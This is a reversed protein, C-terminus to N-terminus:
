AKLCADACMGATTLCEAGDGYMSAAVDGVERCKAALREREAAVLADDYERRRELAAAVAADLATQDFLPWRFQDDKTKSPEGFADAWACPRVTREVPGQGAAENTM